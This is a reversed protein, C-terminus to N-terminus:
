KEKEKKKGVRRVVCILGMKSHVKLIIRSPDPIIPSPVQLHRLECTVYVLRQGYLMYEVRDNVGKCKWVKVRVLNPCTAALEEIGRDSVLCGEIYVEKLAVCKAAICCIETDGVADSGCLGLQELSRCNSALMELCAKSPNMGILVLQQLNPCCKAVAMLSEDGINHPGWGIRLKRLRKCGEAVAVLGADTCMPTKVLHLIELNSCKSIARLGIDSIQLSILHVEVLNMVEDVLLHFLRDWDGSCRVLKLIRLNKAGVFPYFFVTDTLCVAKLNPLSSAAVGDTTGHFHEVSLEELVGCHQMLADMGKPGFNCSGCWFKKLGKCNEALRELGADTLNCCRPNRPAHSLTLVLFRPHSRQGRHEHSRIPPMQSHTRQRFRLSLFPLSHFSPSTSRRKPVSLAPETRRDQVLPPMRPLLRNRDTTSLLQIVSVLCEDPIDDVTLMRRRRLFHPRPDNAM